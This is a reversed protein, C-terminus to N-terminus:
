FNFSGYEIAYDVNSKSLVPCINDEIFKTFITNYHRLLMGVSDTQEDIYSEQFALPYINLMDVNNAEMLKKMPVTKYMMGNKGDLFEVFVNMTDLSKSYVSASNLIIRGVSFRDKTDGPLRSRPIKVEEPFNSSFYSSDIMNNNIMHQMSCCEMFHSIGERFLICGGPIHHTNYCGRLYSGSIEEEDIYEETFYCFGLKKSCFNAGIILSQIQEVADEVSLERLDNKPPIEDVPKFHQIIGEGAIYTFNSNRSEIELTPVETM